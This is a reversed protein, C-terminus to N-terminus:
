DLQSTRAIRAGPGRPITRGSRVRREPSGRATQRARVGHESRPLVEWHSNPDCATASRLCPANSDCHRSPLAGWNVLRHPPFHRLHKAGLANDRLKLPMAKGERRLPHRSRGEELDRQRGRRPLSASRWALSSFNPPHPAGHPGWEHPLVAGLSKCAKEATSASSVPLAHLLCSAGRLFCDRSRLWCGRPTTAGVRLPHKRRFTIQSSPLQVVGLDPNVPTVYTTMVQAVASGLNAAWALTGLEWTLVWTM